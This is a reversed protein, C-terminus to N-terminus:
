QAKESAYLSAVDTSSLASKWIRLDDMAGKFTATATSYKAWDTATNAKSCFYGLALKADLVGTVGTTMLSIDKLNWENNTDDKLNLTKIKTGDLYYTKTYTTADFTMVLQHWNSNVLDVIAKNDDTTGFDGWSDAYVHGQPDPNVKHETTFKIWNPGTAGDGMEFFFGREAALGFMPKNGPAVYDSTNIKFWISLSMSPNIFTSVDTASLEVIDGNGAATAGRFNAAANAVGFRDTTYAVQQSAVTANGLADLIGNNFQVYLTQDASKPATDIGLGTTTFTTSLGTTYTKKAKSALASSVDFTYKTGTILPDTPTVTVVNDTVSITTPIVKTGQKLSINDATATAPDVNDTFTLTIVDSAAVDTAFSAGNLDKDGVKATTLNFDKPTDDDSCGIMTATFFGIALLLSLIWKVNKMIM